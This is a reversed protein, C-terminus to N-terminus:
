TWQSDPLGSCYQDTSTYREHRPKRLRGV